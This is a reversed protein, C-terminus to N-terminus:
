NDGISVIAEMPGGCQASGGVRAWDPKLEREVLKEGQKNSVQIHLPESFYVHSAVWESPDISSQHADVYSTNGVNNSPCGAESCVRVHSAESVLTQGINVTVVRSHAETTCAFQSNCAATLLVTCISALLCVARVLSRRVSDEHTSVRKM